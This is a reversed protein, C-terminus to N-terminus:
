PVARQSDILRSYYACLGAGAGIGVGFIPTSTILQPVGGSNVSLEVAGMRLGPATPHLHRENHLYQGRRSHRLLQRRQGAHLRPRRARRSWTSRFSLPPKVRFTFTLPLTNSCPAPTNAGVPLRQRQRFEGPPGISWTDTDPNSGTRVLDVPRAGCRLDHATRVIRATLAPPLRRRTWNTGNWVWTDNFNPAPTPEVSCSPRAWRQITIGHRGDRAPPQDCSVAPDLQDWQIAWTDAYILLTTLEGGFMVVRSNAADYAMGFTTACCVAPGTGTSSAILQDLHKWEM